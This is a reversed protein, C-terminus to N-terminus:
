LCGVNREPGSDIMNLFLPVFRNLVSQQVCTEQRRMILAIVESLNQVTSADWTRKGSQGETWWDMLREMLNYEEHLAKLFQRSDDVVM